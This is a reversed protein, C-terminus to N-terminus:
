GLLKKLPAPFHDWAAQYTAELPANVYTEPRLFIPMDPLADGVGVYDVYATQPPGADYAALTLPKDAPLEFDEEEFEDWLTKHIGQPDRPTPPFLDILLLHVRQRLLSSAKEIFAKFEAKSGKNGPAVIEIVAVVEGHRHRVTVRNAKEAYLDAESRRVLKAKPPLTAVAVGGSAPGANEDYSSALKLALVDPIPGRVNQEVLSFYDSPLVGANLANSLQVAWTQHFNHFLGADVRKWDHVPM